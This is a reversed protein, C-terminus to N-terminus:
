NIFFMKVLYMCSCLHILIVNTEFTRCIFTFVVTESRKVTLQKWGARFPAPILFFFFFSGLSQEAAPGFFSIIREPNRSVPPAKSPLVTCEQCRSGNTQLGWWLQRHIQLTVALSSEQKRLGSSWTRSNINTSGTSRWTSPHTETAVFSIFVEESSNRLRWTSLM